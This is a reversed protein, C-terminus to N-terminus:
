PEERYLQDSVTNYPTQHDKQFQAPDANYMPKFAYEGPLGHIAEHIFTKSIDSGINKTTGQRDSTLVNKNITTEVGGSASKPSLQGGITSARAATNDGGVVKTKELVEAIDGANVGIRAGNVTLAFTKEPHALLETVAKTYARNIRAVESKSLKGPDDIKCSVGKGGSNQTCTNGSPDTRDLPDDGVYTYLGRNRLFGPM